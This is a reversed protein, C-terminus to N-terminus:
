PDAPVLGVPFKEVQGIKQLVRFIVPHHRIHVSGCVKDLRKRRRM